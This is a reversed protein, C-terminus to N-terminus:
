EQSSCGLSKPVISSVLSLVRSQPLIKQEMAPHRLLPRNEPLDRGELQLGPLSKANCTTQHASHSCVTRRDHKLEQRMVRAPFVSGCTSCCSPVAPCRLKGRPPLTTPLTTRHDLGAHRPALRDASQQCLSSLYASATVARPKTSAKTRTRGAARRGQSAGRLDKSSGNRRKSSRCAEIRRPWASRRLMNQPAIRLAEQYM